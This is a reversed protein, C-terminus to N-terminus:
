QISNIHLLSKNLSNLVFVYHKEEAKTITDTKYEYATKEQDSWIPRNAGEKFKSPRAYMVKIVRGCLESDNMNEIAHDADEQEEYEIFAYGKHTNTATEIPIDIGKIEGFPIFASLLFSDSMAEDLNGIYLIPKKHSAKM